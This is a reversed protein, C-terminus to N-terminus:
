LLHKGSKLLGDIRNDQGLIARGPIIGKGKAGDEGEDFRGADGLKRNLLWRHL